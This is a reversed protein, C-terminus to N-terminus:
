RKSEFGIGCGFYLDTTEEYFWYNQVFKARAGDYLVMMRGGTYSDNDEIGDGLVKIRNPNPMQMIRDVTKIVNYHIAKEHQYYQEVHYYDLGKYVFPSPFFNSFISRKGRYM